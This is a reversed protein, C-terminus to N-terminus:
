DLLCKGTMRVPAHIWSGLHGRGCVVSLHKSTVQFTLPADDYHHKNGVACGSLVVACALAFLLVGIIRM